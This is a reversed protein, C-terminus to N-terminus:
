VMIFVLAESPALLVICIYFFIKGLLDHNDVSNLLDQLPTLSHPRSSQGESQIFFPHPQDDSKLERHILISINFIFFISQYKFGKVQWITLRKESTFIWNKLIQQKSTGRSNTGSNTSPQNIWQSYQQNPTNSVTQNSTSPQNIWQSYQQNLTNSVTQNSTQDVIPQHNISGNLTNNISLIASQKTTPQHNISGNLTNNTSLITPQSYQQSNPQSHSYQGVTPQNIWQKTAPQVLQQNISKGWQQISTRNNSSHQAYQQDQNSPIDEGIRVRKIRNEEEIKFQSCHLVLKENCAQLSEKCKIENVLRSNAIGLLFQLRLVREWLQQIMKTGEEEM